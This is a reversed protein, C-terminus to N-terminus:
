TQPEFLGGATAADPAPYAPNTLFCNVLAAATRSWPLSSAASAFAAFSVISLSSPYLKTFDQPYVEKQHNELRTEDSRERSKKSLENDCIRRDAPDSTPTAARYRVALRPM